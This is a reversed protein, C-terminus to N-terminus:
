HHMSEQVLRAAPEMQRDNEIHFFHKRNNLQVNQVFLVEDRDQQGDNSISVTSRTARTNAASRLSFWENKKVNNSGKLTKFTEILDGRERREVWTTLGISDLREKYTTRKKDSVFRVLRKQVRELM